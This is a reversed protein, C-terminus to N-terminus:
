FWYLVSLAERSRKDHTLTEVSDNLNSVQRQLTMNERVKIVYCLLVCVCVRVCM